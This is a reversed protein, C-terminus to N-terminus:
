SLPKDEDLIIECISPDILRFIEMFRSNNLIKFDEEESTISKYLDYNIVNKEPCLINRIWESFYKVVKSLWIIIISIVISM